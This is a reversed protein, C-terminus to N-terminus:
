RPMMPASPSKEARWNTIGDLSRTYNINCHVGDGPSEDDFCNTYYVSVYEQYFIASASYVGAAAKRTPAGNPMDASVIPSPPIYTFDIGNEAVAVGLKSHTPGGADRCEGEKAGIYYLLTLGNPKKVATSASMNGNLRGRWQADREPSGINLLRIGEDIWDGRSPLQGMCFPHLFYYSSKNTSINGVAFYSYVLYPSLTPLRMTETYYGTFKAVIKSNSWTMTM